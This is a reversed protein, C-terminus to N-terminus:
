RIRLTARRTYASSQLVGGNSAHCPDDIGQLAAVAHCLEHIDIEFAMASPLADTYRVIKVAQVGPQGPREVVRSLQCGLVHGFTDPNLCERRVVERDETVVLTVLPETATVPGLHAARTTACGSLVWGAGALLAAAALSRWAAPSRRWRPRPPPAVTGPRKALHGDV